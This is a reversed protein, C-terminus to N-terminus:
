KSRGEMSEIAVKAGQRLAEYKKRTEQQRLWAGRLAFAAVVLAVLQIVVIASFIMALGVSM